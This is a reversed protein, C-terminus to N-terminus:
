PWWEALVGAKRLVKVYNRVNQATTGLFLAIDEVGFGARLRMHVQETWKPSGPPHIRRLTWQATM